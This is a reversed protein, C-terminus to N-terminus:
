IHSISAAVSTVRALEETSGAAHGVETAGSVHIALITARKLSVPISCFAASVSARFPNASYGVAPNGAMSIIFFHTLLETVSLTKRELAETVAISGLFV